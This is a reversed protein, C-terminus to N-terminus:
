SSPKDFSWTPMPHPGYIYTPGEARIAEKLHDALKDLAPSANKMKNYATTLTNAIKSRLKDTESPVGRSLKAASLLDNKRFAKRGGLRLDKQLFAKLQEKEDTLRDIAATDCNFRAEDIENELRLLEGRIEILAEKDFTLNQTEKEQFGTEGDEPTEIVEDLTAVSRPSTEESVLATMLVPKGADRLLKELRCLGVTAKFHGEAGFGRIFYGDGDLAFVLTTDAPPPESIAPPPPPESIAQASTSPTDGALNSPQFSLKWEELWSRAIPLDAADLNEAERFLMFYGLAARREDREADSPWADPADGDESVGWPAIKEAGRWHADYVAALITMKEADTLARRPVPLLSEHPPDNDYHLEAPLWACVDFEYPFGGEEHTPFGRQKVHEFIPLMAKARRPWFEREQEEFAAIAKDFTEVDNKDTDSWGERPRHDRLCAPPEPRKPPEPPLAIEPPLKISGRLIELHFFSDPEPQEPISGDRYLVGNKKLAECRAEKRREREDAAKLRECTVQRVAQRFVELASVRIIAAVREAVVQWPDTTRTEGGADSM